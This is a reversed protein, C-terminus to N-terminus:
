EHEAAEEDTIPTDLWRALDHGDGQGDVDLFSHECEPDHPCCTGWRQRPSRLANEVAQSPEVIQASDSV